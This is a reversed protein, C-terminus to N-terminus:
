HMVGEEGLMACAPQRTKTEPQAAPDPLLVPTNENMTLTHSEEEAM